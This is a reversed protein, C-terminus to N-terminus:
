PRRACFVVDGTLSAGDDSHGHMDTRGTVEFGAAVLQHEVSARTYHRLGYPHSPPPDPETGTEDIM